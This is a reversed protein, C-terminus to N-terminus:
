DRGAKPQPCGRDRAVGMQPSHLPNVSDPYALIPPSMLCGKLKDLATQCEQSWTFKVPTKSRRGRSVLAHLPKAIQAFRPVFTQYYSMFGLVQRVERVNRPVPWMELAKVKEDDSNIGEASIRHGLFKVEPKLLFCKSPKLKLGHQRLRNFVLELRECHSEFDRSFIIVDDLYVLLVDFALDGLVVGMLRQFTAPANCLGFPMRTWEFLGFSPTVATRERDKESVAVQFYGGTLDLTSFLKANGLAGLFEDM